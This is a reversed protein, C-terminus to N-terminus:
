IENENILTEIWVRYPLAPDPYKKDSIYAYQANKKALEAIKRERYELQLQRRTCQKEM